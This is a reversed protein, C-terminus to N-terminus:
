LFGDEVIDRLSVDSIRPENPNEAEYMRVTERLHQVVRFISTRDERRYQYCPVMIEAIRREILSRNYLPDVYPLPGGEKNFALAQDRSGHEYYPVMGTLITYMTQGFAFVDAREDVPWHANREEPPRYQHTYMSTIDCYTHNTPSWELIEAKNFDNLKIKNDKGLLWQSLQIDDNVLVADYNGHLLALGEAMSLAVALKQPPTLHNQPGVITTPDDPFAYDHILKYEIPYAMEVLISTSCHGYISTTRDTWTTREMSMAEVRVQAMAENDLNQDDRFRMQKLVVESVNRDADRLSWSMRYSGKGLFKSPHDPDTLGLSREHFNNCTPFVQYTSRPRYCGDRRTDWDLDDYHDYWDEYSTETKAMDRLQRGKHGHYADDDDARITRAYGSYRASGAGRVVKLGGYHPDVSARPVVVVGGGVRDNLLHQPGDLAARSASAALYAVSPSSSTANTSRPSSSSSVTWFASAPAQHPITRMASRVITQENNHEQVSRVVDRTAVKTQLAAMSLAYLLLVLVLYRIPLGGRGGGGGCTAGGRKNTAHTGPAGRRPPTTTTTTAHHHNLRPLQMLMPMM